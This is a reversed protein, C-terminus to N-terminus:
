FTTEQRGKAGELRQELVKSQTMFSILATLRLVNALIKFIHAAGFWWKLVPSGNIKIFKM